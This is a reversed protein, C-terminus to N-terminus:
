RSARKELLRRACELGNYVAGELTAPLGNAVIDSALWLGELPTTFGPRRDEVGVDCSFTARKERIVMSDSPAPWDPFLDAIEHSVQRVLENNDLKMHSGDASIVVALLGPQGCVGRDFLWQSTTGCMGIFPQPLRVQKDYQLYITCIPATDIAPAPNKSQNWLGTADLLRLSAHYHTALIVDTSKYVKDVTSAGTIRGQVCNLALVRQSLCVHGHHQEIYQTAPDPIIKGLDQLPILMDSDGRQFLFSRKLTNLYIQASARSVPTNLAALCLPEWLSEIVRQPQAHRRLLEAVAIDHKLQFGKMTMKLCFGLALRRERATLGTAKWIGWVLHLPAPLAPSAKIDVPEQNPSQMHLHLPQRQLFSDSSLGLLDMLELTYRYAGLLIHQGNDVSQGAFAVRRARGGPQRAAELLTVPIGHSALKVAAALGSWGAGIVLVPDINM